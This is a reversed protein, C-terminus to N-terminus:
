RNKFLPIVKATRGTRRPRAPRRQNFLPRLDAHLSLYGESKCLARVAALLERRAEEPLAEVFGLVEIGEPSIGYEPQWGRGDM